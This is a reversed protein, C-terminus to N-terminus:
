RGKRQLDDAGRARRRRVLGAGKALAVLGKPNFIIAMMILAGYVLKYYDGLFRLLEPAFTVIFAGLICGVISGQGGLILMVVFSISLDTTYTAPSIYGVFSAYLSGAVAGFVTSLMFAKIKLNALNLGCTEVADINDRIAFFARGYKSRIIRRSILVFVGLALLFFYYNAEASEISFGFLEFHTISRVGSTGGTFKSNTLCLRVIENFGITTLSLYVGKVRLSPYGLAYGIVVGMVVALLLGLWPSAGAKTILLASSYAGLGFIAASGMNMQGTMGTIFNLGLVVISFVLAQCFITMYYKNFGMVPVSALLAFAVCTFLLRRRLAFTTKM